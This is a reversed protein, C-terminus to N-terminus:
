FSYISHPVICIEKLTEQMQKKEKFFFILRTHRFKQKERQTYKLNKWRIQVMKKRDKLIIKKKEM